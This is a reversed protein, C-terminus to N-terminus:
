VKFTNLRTQLADITAKLTVFAAQSSIPYTGASSGGPIIVTTTSLLNSTDSLAQTTEDLITILEESDNRIKIKNVKFDVYDQLVISDTDDNIGVLAFGNNIDFNSNFIFEEEGSLWDEVTDKTFIMLVKDGIAIPFQLFQGGGQLTVFPVDPVEEKTSDITVDLKTKDESIATITAMNSTSLDGFAKNIANFIFNTVGDNSDTPANGIGM